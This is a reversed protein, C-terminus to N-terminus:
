DKRTTDRFYTRLPINLWKAVQSNKIGNTNTGIRTDPIYKPCSLVLYSQIESELSNADSKIITKKARWGKVRKFKRSWSCKGCANQCSWCLTDRKKEM